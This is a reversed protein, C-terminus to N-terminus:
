FGYYLDMMVNKNRYISPYFAEDVGSSQLDLNYFDNSPGPVIM